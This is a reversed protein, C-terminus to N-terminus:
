RPAMQAIRPWIQALSPAIKSVLEAMSTMMPGSITIKSGDRHWAAESVEQLGNSHVLKPIAPGNLSALTPDSKLMTNCM